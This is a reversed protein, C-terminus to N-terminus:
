RRYETFLPCQRLKRYAKDLIQGVRSGSINLHQAIQDYTYNRGEYEGIGHYMMVVTAQRPDIETQLAQRVADIEEKRSILQLVEQDSYHILSKISHLPLTMTATNRPLPSYLHQPPFLDEVSAGMVDCLKRINTRLEGTRSKYPSMKLNVFKGIAGQDIGTMRSLEAISAIGARDMATLFYNNKVRLQVRYDDVPLDEEVRYARLQDVEEHKDALENKDM